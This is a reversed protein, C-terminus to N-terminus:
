RGYKNPKFGIQYKFVPKKLSTYRFGM